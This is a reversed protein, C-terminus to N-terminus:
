YESSRALEEAREELPNKRKLQSFFLGAVVVVVGTWQLVTIREGLMMWSLVATFVPILNAFVNTRAVGIKRVVDAFLIFALVSAFISLMLLAYLSEGSLKIMFLSNKDVILSTPLFFMLGFLCQYLIVNIIHYDTSIKRITATYFIASFVAFFMLLVGLPNAAVGAGPIFIVMFVGSLSILIGLINAWSLKERLLFFALIPAFLPITSIIVSAITPDIMTLGYTEGIYYLFPEFFALLVFWKLDKKRVPQFKKMAKSVFFLLVTAITLRFTVLWLPPFTQIAIKTWVFSFSWILMAVIIGSYIKIKEM